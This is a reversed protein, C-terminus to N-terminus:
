APAQARDHVSGPVPPRRAGPCRVDRGPAPHKRILGTLTLAHPRGCGTCDGRPADTRPKPRVVSRANPRIEYGSSVLYEAIRAAVGEPTTQDAPTLLRYDEAGARMVALAAPPIPNM